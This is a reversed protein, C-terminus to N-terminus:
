FFFSYANSKLIHAWLNTPVDNLRVALNVTLEAM